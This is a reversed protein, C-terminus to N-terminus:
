RRAARLAGRGVCRYLTEQTAEPGYVRDFNFTKSKDSDDDPPRISCSDEHVELCQQSTSDTERSSLPRIRVAVRVQVSSSASLVSSVTSKRGSVSAATPGGFIGHATSHSTVSM